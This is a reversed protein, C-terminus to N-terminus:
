AASRVAAEASSDQVFPLEEGALWASPPCGALHKWEHALHAQDDYGCAAAVEALSPRDSHLHRRSRELRRLMLWSREFRVV